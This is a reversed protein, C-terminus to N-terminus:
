RQDGGKKVRVSELARGNTDFVLLSKPIYASWVLTMNDRTPPHIINGRFMRQIVDLTKDPVIDALKLTEKCKDCVPIDFELLFRQDNDPMAVRIHPVWKAVGLCRKVICGQNMAGVKEENEM